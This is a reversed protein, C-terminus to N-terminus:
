RTGIRRRRVGCSHTSPPCTQPIPSAVLVALRAAQVPEAARVPAQRALRDARAAEAARVLVVPRDARAQEAARVLVQVVGPGAPVLAVQAVAEPLAREQEAVVPEPGLVEARPLVPRVQQQAPLVLRHGAQQARPLVPRVQQPVPQALPVAQEPEAARAELVEVVGV